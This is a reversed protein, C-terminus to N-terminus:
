VRAEAGGLLLAVAAIAATEARLNRPGLSVTRAGRAVLLAVEDRGLGGEPGIVLTCGGSAVVTGLHPEPAEEWCVLVAGELLDPLASWAVAAEVAPSGGRRATEASERAIRRWRELKAASLARVVSRASVFPVFRAVGLQSAAEIIEESRDGKLLPLVLTLRLPPETAIARRAVVRGSVRGAGVIELRVQHEIDGAVLIVEEGARLRLVTAIQHAQDGGLVVDDAPAEPLFFRHTM